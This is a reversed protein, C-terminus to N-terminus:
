RLLTFSTRFTRLVQLEITGIHQLKLLNDQIGFQLTTGALSFGLRDCGGFALVFSFVATSFTCLYREGKPKSFGSM